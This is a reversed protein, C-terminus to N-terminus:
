ESQSSTLTIFAEPPITVKIQSNLRTSLLLLFICSFVSLTPYLVSHSTLGWLWKRCDCHGKELTFCHLTSFISIAKKSTKNELVHLDTKCHLLHLSKMACVLWLCCPRWDNGSSSVFHWEMKGLSNESLACTKQGWKGGWLYKGGPGLM